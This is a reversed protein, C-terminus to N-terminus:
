RNVVKLMDAIRHFKIRPAPEKAAGTEAAEIAKWDEFTVTVLNRDKILADLGAFGPKGPKTEAIVREAVEFGDPRNTGITGTPGRRAWGTCYLGDEIKGDENDFCGWDDRFKAGELPTSRYGIAPILLQCEIDFTEGTGKARGKEDIVTKELRLGEVKDEGLVEVPMAFFTM